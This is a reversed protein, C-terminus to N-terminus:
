LIRQAAMKVMVQSNRAMQLAVSLAELECLSQQALAKSCPESKTVYGLRELPREIAEDWAALKTNILKPTIEGGVSGNM